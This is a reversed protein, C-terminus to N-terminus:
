PVATSAAEQYYVEMYHILAERSRDDLGWLVMRNGPVVAQPDDLFTDLKEPTWQFDAEEFASSYSFDELGGAQRSFLDHLSPGALHRGPQMVHCGYCQNRFIREGERTDSWAIQPGLGVLALLAFGSLVTRFRRAPLTM